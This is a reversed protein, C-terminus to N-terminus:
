NSEELKRLDGWLATEGYTMNSIDISGTGNVNLQIRLHYDNDRQLPADGYPSSYEPQVGHVTNVTEIVFSGEVEANATFNRAYEQANFRMLLLPSRKLDWLELGSIEQGRTMVDLRVSMSRASLEDVLEYSTVRIANQAFANSIGFFLTAVALISKVM